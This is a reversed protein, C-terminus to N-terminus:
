DNKKQSWPLALQIKTGENPISDHGRCHFYLNKVLPSGSFDRILREKIDKENQHFIYLMPHVMLSM